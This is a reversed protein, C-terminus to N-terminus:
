KDSCSLKPASTLAADLEVAQCGLTHAILHEESRRM